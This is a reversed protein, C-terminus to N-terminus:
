AGEKHEKAEYGRSRWCELYRDRVEDPVPDWQNWVGYLGGGFVHNSSDSGPYAARACAEFDDSVKTLTTPRPSKVVVAMVGRPSVEKIRVAYGRAIMCEIYTRRISWGDHHASAESVCAARDADSAPPSVRVNQTLNGACGSLGFAAVGCLGVLRHLNM